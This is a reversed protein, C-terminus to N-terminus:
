SDLGRSQSGLSNGSDNRPFTVIAVAEGGRDVQDGGRMMLADGREEQTEMAILDFSSWNRDTLQNPGLGLNASSM